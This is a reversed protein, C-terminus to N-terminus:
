EGTAVAAIAWVVAAISVVTVILMLFYDPVTAAPGVIISDIPPLLWFTLGAGVMSASSLIVLRRRSKPLSAVVRETFGNDPIKEQQERLLLDLSDM